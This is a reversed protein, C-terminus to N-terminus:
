RGEKEKAIEEKMADLREELDPPYGNQSNDMYDNWIECMLEMARDRQARAKILDAKVGDLECDVRSWADWNADNSARAEDREKTVTELHARLQSKESCWESIENAVTDGFLRSTKSGCKYVFTFAGNHSLGIGCNPCKTYDSM